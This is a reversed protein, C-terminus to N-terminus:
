GFSGERASERSATRGAGDAPSDGGEAGIGELRIGDGDVTKSREWARAGPSAPFALSRLRENVRGSVADGGASEGRLGAGGRFALAPQRGTEATGGADEARLVQLCM